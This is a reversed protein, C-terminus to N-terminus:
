PFATWYQHQNSIYMCYKSLQRLCFSVTYSGTNRIPMTRIDMWIRSELKIGLRIRSEMKIGILIRIRIRGWTM